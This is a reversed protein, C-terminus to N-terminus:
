QPIVQKLRRAVEMAVLCFRDANAENPRGKGGIIARSVAHDSHKHYIRWLGSVLEVAQEDTLRGSDIDAALFDGLAVDLRWGEIHLGGTLVSYLWWLQIAEFLTQPPRQTLAALTDAIRTLRIADEGSQANPLQARAQQEYHRCVDALLEVASTLGELFPVADTDGENRARETRTAIKAALGPIGLKLLKGIQVALVFGSGNGVVPARNRGMSRMQDDWTAEIKSWTCEKSWFAELEAIAERDADSRAFTEAASFDFCYGGQKGKGRKCPMTAFWISGHYIIRERVHGGAFMDDLEIPSLLAPFQARLCAAERTAPHSARHSRYVETFRLAQRVTPSLTTTSCTATNMTTGRMQSVPDSWLIEALSLM